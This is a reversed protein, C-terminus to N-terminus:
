KVMDSQRALQSLCPLLSRVSMETYDAYQYAAVRIATQITRQIDGEEAYMQMLKSWPKHSYRSRHCVSILCLLCCLRLYCICVQSYGFM